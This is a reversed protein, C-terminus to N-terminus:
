DPAVVVDGLLQRRGNWSDKQVPDGTRESQTQDRALSRVEGGSRDIGGRDHNEDNACDANNSRQHRLPASRVVPEKERQQLHHVHCEDGPHLKEVVVMEFDHNKQHQREHSGREAPQLRGRCQSNDRQEHQDIDPDHQKPPLFVIQRILVQDHALHM